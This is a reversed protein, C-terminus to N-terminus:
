IMRQDASQNTREKAVKHIAKRRQTKIEVEQNSELMQKAKTM